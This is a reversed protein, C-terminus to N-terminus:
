IAIMVMWTWEWLSTQWSNNKSEYSLKWRSDRPLNFVFFVVVVLFVASLFVDFCMKCVSLQIVLLPLAPLQGLAGFAGYKLLQPFFQVAQLCLM